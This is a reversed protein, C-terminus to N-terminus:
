TRSPWVKLKSQAAAASAFLSTSPLPVTVTGKVMVPVWTPSMSVTSVSLTPQSFVHVRAARAEGHPTSGDAPFPSSKFSFLLARNSSAGTHFAMAPMAMGLM